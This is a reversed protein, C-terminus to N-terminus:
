CFLVDVVGLNDSVSLTITKDGSATQPPVHVRGLNDGGTTVVNWEGPIYLTVQGLNDSVSIVGNGDYAEKNTFYVLTRGLKGNIRCNSLDAADFYLTANGVHGQTVAGTEKDRHPILIAVGGTLLAAALLVTWNSILDSGKGLANALPAEFLIFLFALPFFIYAVKGKVLREIILSVLIIGGLVQWLGIGAGLTYGLGDMILVVAVGVLVLGWFISRTWIAKSNKM